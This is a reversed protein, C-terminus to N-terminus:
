QLIEHIVESYTLLTLYNRLTYGNRSLAFDSFDNIYPGTNSPHIGDRSIVTPVKYTDGPVTKFAPSSGDWDFPHRGLIENEYDILPLHFDAALKRIEDAFSYIKGAHGSRLPPTTLIPITGNALCAEVVERTIAAYDETFLQTADNSGFM